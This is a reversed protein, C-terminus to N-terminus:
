DFQTEGKNIWLRMSSVVMKSTNKKIHLALICILIENECALSAIKKGNRVKAEKM